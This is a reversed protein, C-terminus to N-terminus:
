RAAATNAAQVVAAVDAAKQLLADFPVKHRKAIDAWNKGKNHEALVEEFPTRSRKAILSGLLLTSAKIGPNAKEISQLREFPMGTENAIQRFALLKLNPKQAGGNITHVHDALKAKQEESAGTSTPTAAPQRAVVPAAEAPKPTSTTTVATAVAPAAPKNVTITPGAPEQQKKAIGPPLTSEKKELGPPVEDKKELGPPAGDKKALGPPTQKKKDKDKGDEKAKDAFVSMQGACFAIITCVALFKRM